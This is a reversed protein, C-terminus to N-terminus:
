KTPSGVPRTVHQIVRSRVTGTSNRPVLHSSVNPKTSNFRSDSPYPLPTPELVASLDIVAIGNGSQGIIAILINDRGDAVLADYNASLEVPLAIRTRLNGLRGDFVDIGAITPQFLLSGDPSLKMGYVDSAIIAERDNMTLFSEGNLDSDYIYGTAAFQTQNSSLALDYNGYCCGQGDAAAFVTDTATDISYVQGDNNFFVRSNDSSIVARLYPDQLLNPGNIQYDRIAGSNTDLKFYNTYGTGGLVVREYYIMGADSVAVGSPFVIVGNNGISSPIPFTQVSNPTSPNLLYIVSASTDSIALKSGGPSLAIAWLRQTTGQPAPIAIAPLWAGKNRSFVQVKNADTFYYVDRHPDYVGQVLTSGPLLFRQIPPLYALAGRAVASGSSNTIQVDAPGAVGPPIAYAVSELPFPPALTGYANPDVGLITARQGAVTVQLDSPIKTSITFPVLGYGFIYGVGGGEGTSGDPSVEVITPGYSFGEPIIQEGGDNAALYVDVPGPLGPPTTVTILSGTKSILPAKQSGFYVSSHSDVTAPVSWQTQTGGSTPGSVPNLYANTLTTGVPGTRLSSMDVFGIGEEVPGAFLGTGDVAQLYPSSAPGFTLVAGVFDPEVQLNPLWGIQQHTTVDYAYIIRDNPVFLTKSDASFVIGNASSTDGSVDFQSVQNLTHADYLLVQGFAPLAIYRGDPSVIIKATTISGGAVVYNKQGTSANVECLTNDSDISGVLVATRDATRTFGGINNVCDPVVFPDNAVTGSSGNGYIVISNDNSNWIAFSESGDVGPIGGQTGLLALRGDALVQVSLARYGADPGIQSALYRHTVALTAVDIAYVDGILTGVYVTKHDPTDDIGWAGPIGISAVRRETAADFVFVHNGQPDTMFFESSNPNYVIWHTNLSALYTTAADSRVYRTRSPPVSSLTAWVSLSLVAGHSLSGSTGTFTPTANTTVANTAASLMVQQTIGPTLTITTPSSSIATPLGTIQVSISSSFGNVGVASLSVSTSGGAVVSSGSPNVALTFDPAAPATPAQPNSTGGGACGWCVALGFALLGRCWAAKRLFAIRTVKSM